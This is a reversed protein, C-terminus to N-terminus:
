QIIVPDCEVNIDLQHKVNNDQITNCASGSLNITREDTLEWGDPDGLVLDVGDLTVRVYKPNGPAKDLQYTCSAVEGAIAEIAGLLSQEDEVARHQTDGTGGRRALEDLITALEAVNRTDYGIVYTKINDDSLSQMENYADNQCDEISPTGLVAAPQASTSCNPGGDTVLLVFKPAVDQDPGAIGTGLFDHASRLTGAIPTSSGDPTEADLESAIQAATNLAPRTLVTGPQCPTGPLLGPLITSPLDPAPFVMLGFKVRDELSTTITKIASVSPAWRDFPKDYPPDPNPCISADPAEDCGVWLMSGSKDLVIMLDPITKQARVTVTECFEDGGNDGGSDGGTAGGNLGPDTGNDGGTASGGGGADAEAGGNGGTIPDISTGTKTDSASCGFSNLALALSLYFTRHM